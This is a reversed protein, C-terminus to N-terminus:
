IAQMGDILPVLVLGFLFPLFHLAFAVILVVPLKKVKARRVQHYEARLSEAQRALTESVRTGEIHAQGLTAFFAISAPTGLRRGAEVFAEADPMTRAALTDLLWLVEVTVSGQTFRSTFRMAQEVSMGSSLPIQLMEVFEPLDAASREAKKAAGKTASNYPNAAIGIGLLVATLKLIGHVANTAALVLVASGVIMSAVQMSLYAEFSGGYAGSAVVKERLQNLLPSKASSKLSSTNFIPTALRGLGGGFSAPPLVEADAKGTVRGVQIWTAVLFSGMLIVFGAVVWEM